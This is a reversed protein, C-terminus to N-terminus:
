NPLFFGRSMSHMREDTQCKTKKGDFCKKIKTGRDCSGFETKKGRKQLRDTKTGPVFETEGTLGFFLLKNNGWILLFYVM